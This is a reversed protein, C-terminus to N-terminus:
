QDTRRNLTVMLFFGLGAYGLLGWYTLEPRAAWMFATFPIALIGFVVAAEVYLLRRDTWFGGNRESAPLLARRNKFKRYQRIAEGGIGAGVAAVFVTGFGM